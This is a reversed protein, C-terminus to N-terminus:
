NLSFIKFMGLSAKGISFPTSSSGVDRNALVECDVVMDEEVMAQMFCFEEEEVMGVKTYVCGDMCPEEIKDM